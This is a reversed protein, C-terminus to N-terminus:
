SKNKREKDFDSVRENFIAHRKDESIDENPRIGYGAFWKWFEIEMSSGVMWLAGGM